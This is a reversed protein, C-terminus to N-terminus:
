SKIDKFLLSTKRIKNMDYGIILKLLCYHIFYDDEDLSRDKM